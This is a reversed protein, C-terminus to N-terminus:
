SISSYKTLISLYEKESITKTDFLVKLWFTTERAEKLSISIKSTFEKKSISVTAEFVNAGISTGSRLLQNILIVEVKKKKLHRSLNVIRIAFAQSKELIINQKMASLNLSYIFIRYNIIKYNSM